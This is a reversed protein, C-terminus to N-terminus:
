EHLEEYSVLYGVSIGILCWFTVNAVPSNLFTEFMSFVIAGSLVAIGSLAGKKADINKARRFSSAFGRYLEFILWLFASLGILGSEMILQVFQNHWDGIYKDPLRNRDEITVLSKFSGLGHGVLLHGEIKEYAISWVVDRGSLWDKSGFTQVIRDRGYPLVILALSGLLFLVVFIRRNFWFTLLGGVTAITLWCSRSFTLLLGLGLIATGFIKDWIQRFHTELLLRSGFFLITMVLYKALLSYSGLPPQDPNGLNPRTAGFPPGIRSELGIGFKIVGVAAAVVAAWFWIQEFRGLGDRGLIQKWNVFAFFLLGLMPYQLENVSHDINPSYLVGIMRIVYLLTVAWLIRKVQHSLPRQFLLIASVIGGITAVSATIQHLFM